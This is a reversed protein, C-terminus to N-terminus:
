IFSFSYYILNALLFSLMIALFFYLVPNKLKNLGYDVITPLGFILLILSYFVFILTITSM